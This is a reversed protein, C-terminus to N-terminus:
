TSVSPQRPIHDARLLLLNIEHITRLCFVIGLCRVGVFSDHTLYYFVPLKWLAVTKSVASTNCM